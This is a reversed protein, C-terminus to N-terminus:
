HSNGIGSWFCLWALFSAPLGSLDVQLNRGGVSSILGTRLFAVSTSVGRVGHARLPPTPDERVSGAESIVMELLALPHDLLRLLSHATVM